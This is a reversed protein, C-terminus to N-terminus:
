CSQSHGLSSRLCSVLANSDHLYGSADTSDTFAWYDESITSLATRRASDNDMLITLCLLSTRMATTGVLAVRGGGSRLSSVVMGALSRSDFFVMGRRKATSKMRKATRQTPSAIRVLQAGGAAACRSALFHSAKQLNYGNLRFDNVSACTARGDRSRTIAGDRHWELPVCHKQFARAYVGPAVGCIVLRLLGGTVIEALQVGVRRGRGTGKRSTSETADYQTSM